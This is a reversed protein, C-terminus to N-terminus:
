PSKKTKGIMSRIEGQKLYKRSFEIGLVDELKELIEDYHNFIYYGREFYSGSAKRLSEAIKGPYYEGELKHDLLKMITLAIFCTLFHAEIHETKSLYVPRSNLVSKTIKFTEEIEWLGRYMKIIDIATVERNLVLFNGDEWRSHGKFPRQHKMLGHVNTTIAYYGDYREEEALKQEDFLLESFFDEKIRGDEDFCVESIYKRFGQSHLKGRKGSDKIMEMAKAIAKKRSERAKKAYKESYFVIQRENVTINRKPASEEGETYPSFAITKPILREKYKLKKHTKEDEDILYDDQRIVWDKFEQTAKRISYSIIYGNHDLIIQGKNDGTMMGMDAVFIIDKMGFQETTTQMVPRMTKCDTTNGAFLDYTVPIGKQDMFLGMQIIPDPRNEKSFGKKRLDDEHDIEFYYNTVDYFLMSTDRGYLQTIKENLHSLLASRHKNFFPLSRYVDDLSFDMKEFYRDKALWNARKSGPYLIREYTLLKLISNHNFGAKTYRRRNNIFYDLELQHYISSIAAAGLNKRNSTSSTPDKPTLRAKPDFSLSVPAQQEQKQTSWQQALSSFHAIPDDYLKKLDSLYGLAKITRQKSKGAPDRYGEVISLYLDGSKHKTKRLFM